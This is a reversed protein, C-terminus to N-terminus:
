ALLKGWTLPGIVGDVTLGNNAQFQRVRTDAQPGFVGDCALGTSHSHVNLLSQALQVYPGTAPQALTPVSITVPVETFTPAPPQHGSVNDLWHKSWVDRDFLGANEYQVGVIPFPGTAAEVMTAAVSESLGWHAVCLGIGSTIGGSVLANVVNTVNSQSTYIAPSRQGPRKDSKFSFLAKAAWVPCEAPTAAGSEVDLVDATSDSAAADQDIRVAGPHRAWDAATWAIDSSGSTYGAAQGPPLANINQHTADAGTVTAM